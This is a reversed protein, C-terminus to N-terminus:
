PQQTDGPVFQLTTGSTNAPFQLLVGSMDGPDFRLLTSSTDGPDTRVATGPACKLGAPQTLRVIDTGGGVASGDSVTWDVHGNNCDAFVFTLTGWFVLQFSAPDSNSPFQGPTGVGRYANLTAHNGSASGRAVIWMPGGEPAFTLWAATLQRSQAPPQAPLVELMLDYTGQDPVGWAGTTAPGIIASADRCDDDCPLIYHNALAAPVACIIAAGCLILRLALKTTEEMKM